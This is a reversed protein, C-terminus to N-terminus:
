WEQKACLVAASRITRLERRWAEREEDDSRLAEAPGPPPAPPAPPPLPPGLALFFCFLLRLVEGVFFVHKMLMDCTEALEHLNPLSM